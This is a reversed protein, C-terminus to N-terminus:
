EINLQPKLLSIFDAEKKEREIRSANANFLYIPAAEFKSTLNRACRAIHKSMNLITYEEHDIQQRHITLRNRFIDGTQGLYFDGCANCRIVYIVNRSTCTLNRNITFLRTRGGSSVKFKITRGLILTPCCKCRPEGCPSIGEITKRNNSNLIRLLSPPQKYSRFFRMEQFPDVLCLSQAVPKIVETYVNPNNRNFTCIFPVANEVEKKNVVTSRSEESSNRARAFSNDILSPPYKLKLLISKLQNLQLMKNDDNSVISHIRKALCYPINKLIHRPHGSDFPVYSQSDTIKRHIDTELTNSNKNVYLRVDLFNIEDYSYEITFQISSDLSNLINHFCDLSGFSRDWCIFCDDIYRIWRKKINEVTMADYFDLLRKYLKEELYGMVLIAYSPAVKAGMATGSLQLYTENEFTFYNNQLVLSLSDLVFDKDFRSPLLDEHERLWHKISDMGLSQPIKTYLSVVDFTVLVITETSM